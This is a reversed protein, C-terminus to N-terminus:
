PAPTLHHVLIKDAELRGLLPGAEPSFVLAAM